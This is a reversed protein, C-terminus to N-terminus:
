STGLLPAVQDLALEIAALDAADGPFANLQGRASTLAERTLRLAALAKTVNGAALAADLQGLGAGLASRATGNELASTSRGAADSTSERAASVASAKAADCLPVPASPCVQDAPPPPPSAIKDGGCTITVASLAATVLGCQVVRSAPHRTRDRQGPRHHM